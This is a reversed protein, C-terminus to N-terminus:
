VNHQQLRLKEAHWFLCGMRGPLMTRNLVHVTAAMGQQLKKGLFQSLPNCVVISHLEIHRGSKVRWFGPARRREISNQLCADHRVRASDVNVGELCYLELWIQITPNHAGPTVWEVHLLMSKSPSTDLNTCICPIHRTYSIYIGNIHKTYVHVFSIMSKALNNPLLVEVDM